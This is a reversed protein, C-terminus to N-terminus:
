YDVNVNANAASNMGAGTTAVSGAFSVAPFSYETTNGKAVNRIVVNATTSMSIGIDNANVQNGEVRHGSSVLYIGYGTAGYGNRNSTNELVMCDFVALIGHLRNRSAMCRSILGNGEHEIGSGLNSIASCDTVTCDQRALIGTSANANAVCRVLSCGIGAEIGIQANGSSVCDRLVSYSGAYLGATTSFTNGIVRCNEVLSNSGVAIGWFDPRLVTCNVVESQDEVVIGISDTDTVQVNEVRCGTCEHNQAGRLDIAIFLNGLRGNRVTVNSRSGSLTIGYTNTKVEGRIAFGNLDITVNDADVDIGGSSAPVTMDQVLYYSGSAGIEYPLMTIPTRPEVQDLPKMTPGIPGDPPLLTGATAGVAAICCVVVVLGKRISRTEM